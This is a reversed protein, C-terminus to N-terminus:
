GADPQTEPISHNRSPKVPRVFRSGPLEKILGRTQLILLTSLVRRAPLGVTRVIDDTDRADLGVVDFVIKEDGALTPIIQEQSENDGEVVTLGFRIPIDFPDLVLHAGDQILKNCGDSRKDTLRGPVAFVEKGNQLALDSTILAGSKEPAEIVLTGRALAAIIRNRAPFNFKEPITGLPFESILAGFGPIKGFLTNNEAPFVVDIGCGLVAFTKGDAQIAINHAISDIGRAGGSIITFGMSSLQWSFQETIM